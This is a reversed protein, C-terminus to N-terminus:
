MQGPGLSPAQLGHLVAQTLAPHLHENLQLEPM